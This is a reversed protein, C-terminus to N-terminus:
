WKEICVVVIRKEFYMGGVDGAADEM